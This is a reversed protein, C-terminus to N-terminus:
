TSRVANTRTALPARIRSDSSASVSRREARRRRIARRAGRRRGSSRRRASRRAGRRRPSAARRRDTRVRSVIQGHETGDVPEVVLEVRRRGRADALAAPARVRSDFLPRRFHMRERQPQERRVVFKERDIPQAVIQVDVVRVKAARLLANARGITSRRSANSKSSDVARSSVDASPQERPLARRTQRGRRILPRSTSSTKRLRDPGRSQPAFCLSQQPQGAM